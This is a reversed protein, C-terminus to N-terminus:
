PRYIWVKIGITGNLTFATEEAYEISINESPRINNNIIEIRKSNARPRGNLRGSIKIKIRKFAIFETNKFCKLTENIFKIFFNHQKLTKFQVAMFKALLHSSEYITACLFLLNVGEQFFSHQSYKRLKTLKTKLLNKNEKTIVQQLNYKSKKLVLFFNIKNRTFLTLSELFQKVFKDTKLNKAKQNELFLNSNSLFKTQFKSIQQVKNKQIFHKLVKLKKNKTFTNEFGRRVVEESSYHYYSIVLRVANNLYYLKCEHVLMNHDEFFKTIFGKIELTKKQYISYENKKKEFYKFNCKNINNQQMFKDKNIQNRLFSNPELLHLNM